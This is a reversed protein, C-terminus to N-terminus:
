DLKNNELRNQPDPDIKNQKNKIKPPFTAEFSFHGSKLDGSTSM